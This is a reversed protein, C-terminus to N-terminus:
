SLSFSLISLRYDHPSDGPNARRVCRPCSSIAEFLFPVYDETPNAYQLFRGRIGIFLFPPPRGIGMASPSSPTGGPYPTSPLGLRILGRPDPSPRPVRGSLTSRILSFIPSNNYTPNRGEQNFFLFLSFFFFYSCFLLFLCRLSLIIYFPSLSLSNGSSPAFCNHCPRLFCYLLPYAVLFAPALNRERTANLAFRQHRSPGHAYLCHLFPISCVRSPSDMISHKSSPPLFFIQM